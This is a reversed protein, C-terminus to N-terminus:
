EAAEKHDNGGGGSDRSKDVARILYTQNYAGQLISRTPAQGERPEGM